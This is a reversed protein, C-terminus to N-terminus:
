PKKSSYGQLLVQNGNNQEENFFLHLLLQLTVVAKESKTAAVAGAETAAEIATAPVVGITCSLKCCDKDIQLLM